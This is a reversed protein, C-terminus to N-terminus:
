PGISQTQFIVPAVHNRHGNLLESLSTGWLNPLQAVWCHDNAMTNLWEILKQHQQVIDVMFRNLRTGAM